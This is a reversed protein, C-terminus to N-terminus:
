RASLYEYFISKQLCVGFSLAIENEIPHFIMTKNKFNQEDAIM